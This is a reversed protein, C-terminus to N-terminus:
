YFKIKKGYFNVFLKLAELFTASPREHFKIPLIKKPGTMGWYIDASATGLPLKFSAEDALSNLSIFLTLLAILKM